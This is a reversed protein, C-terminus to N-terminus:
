KVIRDLRNGLRSLLENTITDAFSAIVEASVEPNDGILTVVDGEKANNINSVDIILQDMCIRGIVYAYQNNILVKVEKGSLCRPYGDAYGIGVSAIKISNKSVFARGYGVEENSKIERISTIRAKLSLIPKLDLKIKTTTNKKSNVGYMIIGPRVYDYKLHPYNLIGYSSQVHVKGPNYGLKKLNDILNNFNNIQNKTFNIDDEKLSDSVSLHTFIGMIKINNFHYMKQINTTNKYNEGIRNMGTNIKIHAKLKRKLKMRSIVKAYEFDVLTQILDYKLVYKIDPFNTYGLILINGKVGNKRLTIAENLTAVAFDKIGLSSLKKAILIIGHGYANAKIVAMINTDSPINKKIEKINHELNDLNIEVWARDTQLYDLKEKTKKM